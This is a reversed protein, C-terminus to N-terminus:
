SDPIVQVAQFRADYGQEYIKLALDGVNKNFTSTSIGLTRKLAIVDNTWAWFPSPIGM